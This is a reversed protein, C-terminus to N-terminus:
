VTRDSPRRAGHLDPAGRALDGVALGLEFVRRAVTRFAGEDDPGGPLPEVLGHLSLADLHREALARSLAFRRSVESASRPTALFSLMRVRPPVAITALTAATREEQEVTEIRSKM